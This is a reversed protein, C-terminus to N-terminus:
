AAVTTAIDEANNLKRWNFLERDVRKYIPFVMLFIIMGIGIICAWGFLEKISELNAQVRFVQYASLPDANPSHAGHFRQQFLPDAQDSWAALRDTLQIPRYYMWVSYISGFFAPGLYTRTFILMMSAVGFQATSLGVSLYLGITMYSALIGMGRIVLPLLMATPETQTDIMLYFMWDSIVYCLLVFIMMVKFNNFYKYYWFCVVAGLLYGYIPYTNVRANEIQDGKFAISMWPSLLSSQSYFICYFFIMAIGVWVNRIGLVNFELIRHRLLANRLLFLLLLSITLLSAVQISSSDFWDETRGYTLVYAFSLMWGSALFLSFWDFKWMPIKRGVFNNNVLGISLLLAFFLMLNSIHFSFHWGFKDALFVQFIGSLPTTLLSIPYYVCYMQFRQAGNPMLIPILNVVMLVSGTLRIAGIFFTSLVIIAPSDTQTLLFNLFMLSLCVVLLIQKQSFYSRLKNFAAFSTAMGAMYAYSCMSADAPNVALDSVMYSSIATSLGSTFSICLSMFIIFYVDLKPNVWNYFLRDRM